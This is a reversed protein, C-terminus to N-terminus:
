SARVASAAPTSWRAYAPAYGNTGLRYEGQARLRLRGAPLSARAGAHLGAGMGVLLNTDLHPALWGGDREGFRYEVDAGAMALVGGDTQLNRTSDVARGGGFEDVVSEPASLDFAATAGVTFRDDFPRVAGRGGVLRPALYNDVLGEVDADAQRVELLVGAHPHDPDLANHYGRVLTGHGLSADALEGARVSVGDGRFSLERLVHAVDSPEDWDERRITPDGDRKGFTRLRLRAELLVRWAEDQGLVVGHASSM